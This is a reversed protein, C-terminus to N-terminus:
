SSGDTRAHANAIESLRRQAHKKNVLAPRRRPASPTGLPRDQGWCYTHFMHLMLYFCKCSAVHFCKNCCLVSVNLVNPVYQQLMHTFCICCKSRFVQLKRRSYIFCKSCCRQFVQLMGRFCKCCACCGWDVKAVDLRLLRLMGRLPRFCKFMHKCCASEDYRRRASTM